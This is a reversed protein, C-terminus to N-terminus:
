IKNILYTNDLLTFDEGLTANTIIEKKGNKNYVAFIIGNPHQILIKNVFIVLESTKSGANHEMLCMATTVADGFAGSGGLVTASVVGTDTPYGTLPNIIHSYNVGNMTYYKEYDGSTSVSTNKLSSCDIELIASHNEDARPHIVTLKEVSLLHLSSGGINIYGSEHGANKLIDKAKDVAYGKLIGGFDVKLQSNQKTISLTQENTTINDFDTKEGVLELIDSQSPLTFNLNPYNNFQWLSILPYIAPSFKKDTFNFYTKSLSFVELFRNSVLVETNAQANNIKYTYSCSDNNNFEADLSAFLEDLATETQKSIAFDHTEIHILTNFYSFDVVSGSKSCNLCTISLTFILFLLLIRKLKNM